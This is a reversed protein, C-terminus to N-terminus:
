VVEAGAELSNVEAVTWPASSAPSIERVTQGNAVSAGVAYTSDSYNTGGVRVVGKVNVSTADSSSVLLNNAVAKVSATTAALDTLTFMDRSAAVNSANYSATNVPDDDVNQWNPVAPTPAFQSSSGVGDPRLTQIRIEDQFGTWVGAGGPGVASDCVYLDDVRMTFVSTSNIRISDINTSTGANRTDGTFDIVTVGDQRVVIRGGSDAITTYFELYYWSNYNLAPGSGSALTTGSRKAVLGGSSTMDISTHLVNGGDTRFEIITAASPSMSVPQFAFGIYMDAQPVFSRAVYAGSGSQLSKGYNYRTTTSATPSGAMVVWKTAFDGVDFGDLFRLM